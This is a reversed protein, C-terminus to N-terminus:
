EDGEGEEGLPTWEGFKEVNVKVPGRATWTEYGNYEWGMYKSAGGGETTILYRNRVHGFYEAVDCPQEQDGGSPDVPVWGYGPLYCECWRHFVEDTSADDGRIAVSGVYRTPLGAARCMAIFVFSYESCSGNGRTLIAPAVNWGGALEYYMKEHLYRYIKRMIWYPRKEGGLAEAVANQIVLDHIRYKDEDVLYQRRIDRPIDDLSGVKEPFVFWRADFLEADVTMQVRQRQALPLKESHFHAFRQGWRDTVFDTPEPSFVPEGELKQNPREVPLALYVDLSTLEGPGYNRCEHLFLLRQRHSESQQIKVGDDIVLESLTDDEYDVAWLRGDRWALDRVHNGPAALTILVEGKEPEVMYIQDKIRDSCWLYRGDWALGQPSGFPSPFHVITTGDEGSIRAIQDAREDCLWLNEGDWTLGQPRELPSEFNALTTGTEVDVRYIRNEQGDICWLAKGDWALGRPIFGPAPLARVVDGTAPEIAYLSDCLRDALWLHKGDFALGTPHSGPTAHSAVVDGPTALAPSALAGLLLLAAPLGPILKRV